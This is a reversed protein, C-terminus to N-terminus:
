PRGALDPRTWEDVPVIKVGQGPRPAHIMMGGGLYLAVHYISGPGGNSWFLLDGRRARGVPVPTSADYQAGSFHPLSRGGARWARMTLGSCDWSSPGAAGFVYPEGLQAKAFRIAAEVGGSPEPAPVPEPDPRPDPEPDPRPAPDPEPEPDATPRASPRSSPKPTPTSSPKEAPAASPAEASPESAEPQSASAEAAEEAAAAQAAAAARRERAARELATQRRAALAVSVGQAEALDAVLRTKEARVEGVAAESAAMAADAETKTRRAEAALDRQRVVAARDRAALVTSVSRASEYADLAATLADGTSDYAGEQELLEGPGDADLVAGLRRLSSSDEMGQVSLRAVAASQTAVSAKAAAARAATARADRRAKSLAYRAGNWAEGAKAAELGTTELREDAAALRARIVGVQAAKTAAAGQAAAVDSASPTGDDEAHAPGVLGVALATCVATAAVVRPRRRASTTARM